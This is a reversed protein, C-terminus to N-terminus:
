PSPLDRVHLYRSSEDPAGVSDVAPQPDCGPPEIEDTSLGGDFSFRRILDFWQEAEAANGDVREQFVPDEDTNPDVFASVGSDCHRTEFSDWGGTALDLFGGPRLYPNTRTVELRRPYAAIAEPTLMAETRLYHQDTGTGFDRLVGTTAGALNSLGTVERRYRRVVELIANVPGLWDDLEALLPPLHDDLLRRTAQMGAPAADIIGPLQGFFSRLSPALAELELATPALERAGPRLATIVPDNDVAFEELRTLTERSERLFTPFITFADALEENRAATTGFVANSNRILGQLQGQRESLADFVEGGDSVFKTVAAEQSDLLRLLRDAEDAFPALSALAASFDDGRGEFAAAQGQMWVRFAEQTQSDFARFVEDLQVADSVQAMPISGGEPVADSEQSGPSLEVYTEGLLTKQRLVARTDAPIPAYASDLELTAEATGEVDREVASIRGVSVGSIRVDAGQALASAETFPVKVKYGESKLPVPGGFAIWLFLLLAFCSIAFGVAILIRTVSPARTEM